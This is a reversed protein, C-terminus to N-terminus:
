KKNPIRVEKPMDSLQPKHKPKEGVQEKIFVQRKSETLRKKNFINRDSTTLKENRKQLVPTISKKYEEIEKNTEKLRTDVRNKRKELKSKKSDDVSSIKENIRNSRKTLRESKRENDENKDGATRSLLGAGVIKGFGAIADSVGNDSYVNNPNFGGEEYAGGEGGQNVISRQQKFPSSTNRSIINNKM